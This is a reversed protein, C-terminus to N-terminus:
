PPSLNAMVHEFVACEAHTVEDDVLYRFETPVPTDKIRQVVRKEIEVAAEHKDACEQTGWYEPREFDEILADAVALADPIQAAVERECRSQSM